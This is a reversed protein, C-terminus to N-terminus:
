PMTVATAAAPAIQPSGLGTLMNGIAGTVPGRQPRLAALQNQQRAFRLENLRNRALHAASHGAMFGGAGGLPGMMSHGAVFGAMGGAAPLLGLEGGGFLQNVARGLKLVSPSTAEPIEAHTPFRKAIENAYRRPDLTDKGIQMAGSVLKMDRYASRAASYIQRQDPTLAASIMDRVTKEIDHANRAINSDDHKTLRDLPTDDRVLAAMEDGRVRPAKNIVTEIATRIPAFEQPHQTAAVGLVRGLEAVDQPRVSVVAQREIIGMAGGILRKQQNMVEPTLKDTYAGFLRGAARTVDAPTVLQSIGRGIAGLAGGVLGAVPGAIAGGEVQGAKEAGYDPGTVPQAAGAAAGIAANAIPQALRPLQAVRGVPLALSAAIDGAGALYPAERPGREIFGELGRAAIDTAAAAPAAGPVGLAEAGHAALQAVGVPLRAAGAAAYAPAAAMEKTREWTRGLLGPEAAQPSPAARAPPSPKLWPPDDPHSLPPEIPPSPTAGIPPQAPPRLWPPEDDIPRSGKPMEGAAAPKAGFLEGAIGGLVKPVQAFDFPISSGGRTAIKKPEAEPDISRFAVPILTLGADAAAQARHRGDFDVIKRTDGRGSLEVTPIAEIEDGAELSKMLARRKSKGGTEADDEIPPLMDLYDAPDMYRVSTNSRDQEFRIGSPAFKGGPKDSQTVAPREFYRTWLDRAQERTKANQIEDWHETAIRDGGTVQSLAWDHQAEPDQWNKQAELSSKRDAHAQYLGVSTKGDGEVTTRFSSERGVNDAIGEAVHRPVGRKVWADVVDGWSTVNEDAM